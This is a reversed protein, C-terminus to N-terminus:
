LCLPLHTFAWQALPQMANPRDSRARRSLGEQVLAPPPRYGGLASAIGRALTFAADERRARAVVQVRVPLGDDSTGARM